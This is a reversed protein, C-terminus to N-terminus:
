KEEAASILFLFVIVKIELSFYKPQFQDEPIHSVASTFRKYILTRYVPNLETIIFRMWETSSAAPLYSCCVYEHM